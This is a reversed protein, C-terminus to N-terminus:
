DGGVASDEDMSIAAYFSMLLLIYLITSM